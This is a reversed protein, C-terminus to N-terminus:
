NNDKNKRVLALGDRWDMFPIIKKKDASIYFGPISTPQQTYGIKAGYGDLGKYTGCSIGVLERKQLMETVIGPTHTHATVGVDIADQSKFYNIVGYAPNHNSKGMPKHSMYMTYDIKEGVTIKLTLSGPTFVQHKLKGVVREMMHEGTNNYGWYGHCGAVSAILKHYLYKEFLGSAYMFSHHPNAFIQEMGLGKPGTAVFDILDGVFIAYVDETNKITDMDKKLRKINVYKSGIHTDSLCVILSGKPLSIEFDHKDKTKEIFKSSAIEDLDEYTISDDDDIIPTIVGTESNALTYDEHEYQKKIYYFKSKGFKFEEKIIDVIEGKTLKDDAMLTYYRSMVQKIEGTTTM